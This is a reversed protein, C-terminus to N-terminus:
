AQIEKSDQILASVNGRKKSSPFYTSVKIGQASHIGSIISACHLQCSLFLPPLSGKSSFVNKGGDLCSSITKNQQAGVDMGQFCYEALSPSTKTFM